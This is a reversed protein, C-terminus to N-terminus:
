SYKKLKKLREILPPHSYHMFVYAPHPTPNSLNNVSLKKLAEQLTIGNFTEAAYRDAEYENKRSIMSMGMGILHSIPSFLIGFALLNLPISLGTAGLAKSLYPNLILLSLIFLIIGTQLISLTLGLIIHKKKFHGVEHALVAVLEAITHNNILTDFLVIKKKAGIGSFFANAKASRKSGDIVFINALPFNVNLLYEEISSRLEGQELPKLKNFLPVILSTYFINIFLMFVSIVMWFWIWFSSGLKDILFFLILFILGGIIATLLYGKVKDSIYTRITTKNFGFRQEIIFTRYLSFPTNLIDSIIYLLGFFALSAIATNQISNNLIDYLWGFLGFIIVIIILIFNFSSTLFGFSTNAKQYERAKRIKDEDYVEKLEEPIITKQYRFNLYDMIQNLLFDFSFIIIILILLQQSNM